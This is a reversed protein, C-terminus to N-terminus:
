GYYQGGGGRTTHHPHPVTPSPQFAPNIYIYIFIYM